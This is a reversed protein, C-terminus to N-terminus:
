GNQYVERVCVRVSVIFVVNHQIYTYLSRVGFPCPCELTRASYLDANTDCLGFTLAACATPPLMHAHTYTQTHPQVRSNLQGRSYIHWTEVRLVRVRVGNTRKPKAVFILRRRRALTSGWRLRGFIGALRLRNKLRGVRLCVCMCACIHSTAATRYIEIRGSFSAYATPGKGKHPSHLSKPWIDHTHLRTHKRAPM